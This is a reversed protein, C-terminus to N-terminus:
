TGSKNWPPPSAAAMGGPLARREGHPAHEAWPTLARNIQFRLAHPSFRGFLTLEVGAERIAHRREDDPAQGFAIPILRSAHTHSRLEVVEAEFVDPEIESEPILLVAEAQGLDGVRAAADVMSDARLIRAPLAEIERAIARTFPSDPGIVLVPGDALPATSRGNWVKMRHRHGKAVNPGDRAKMRPRPNGTTQM